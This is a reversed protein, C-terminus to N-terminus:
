VLTDDKNLSSIISRMRHSAERFGPVKHITHGGAQAVGSEQHCKTFYNAFGHLDVGYRQIVGARHAHLDPAKIGLPGLTHDIDEREM